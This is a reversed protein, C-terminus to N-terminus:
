TEWMEITVGRESEERERESQRIGQLKEDFNDSKPVGNPIASPYYVVVGGFVKAKVRKDFSM